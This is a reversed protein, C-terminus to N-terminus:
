RHDLSFRWCRSGEMVAAMYELLGRGGDLTNKLNESPKFGRDLISDDV